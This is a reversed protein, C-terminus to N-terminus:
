LWSRFPKIEGYFLPVMQAVGQNALASSMGAMEHALADFVATIDTEGM